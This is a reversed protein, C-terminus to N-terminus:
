ALSGGVHPALVAAVARNCPTAVGLRQGRAVVDGALWPLELRGGRNLDHHMSSTMAEPLGDAFALRNAAFDAPLPVGEALAVQVVEDMVDLLFQRSAAHARVQGVPVRMSTTTGSLGVLFVFKEWIRQRIQESFEHDFGAGACAASFAALRESRRGDLEGFVLKHMAGIHRIHGPEAISAAIYAVGGVVADPGLVGQLIEDKVVGNQFSVVATHPGVVPRIAAAAAETDWLKVGFMVVDAVGFAAPDNSAQVSALHLDGAPSSIRLGQTQLAQLQAGRAVFGVDCGAAALRGGFYGGVGGTGMVVIRM